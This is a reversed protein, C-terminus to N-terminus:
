FEKTQVGETFNINQPNVGKKLFVSATTLLQLIVLLIEM